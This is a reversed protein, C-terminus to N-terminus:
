QNKLLLRDEVIRPSGKIYKIILKKEGNELRRNIEEKLNQLYQKQAPTQDSYIKVTTNESFKTRNRLLYKAIDTNDFCIKLPRNKSPTYKGLRMYQISAPCNEKLMFKTIEELDHKQRSKFDKNTVEPIGVLIVNRERDCRDKLELILSEQMLSPSKNSSDSHEQYKLHIIQQEINSIKEDTTKNHSKLEQIDKNVQLLQVTFQETTLKITQIEEKIVTMEDRFLSAMENQSKAFNELFSMLETRFQSFDQKYDTEETRERRKRFNVNLHTEDRGGYTTLDPVSGGGIGSVSASISTGQPPTRHLSM